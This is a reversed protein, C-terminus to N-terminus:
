LGVGAYYRAFSTRRYLSLGTVSLIGGTLHRFGSGHPHLEEISELLLRHLQQAQKITDSEEPWYLQALRHKELYGYDYLHNLADRVQQFFDIETSM